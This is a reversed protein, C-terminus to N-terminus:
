RPTPVLLSTGMKVGDGIALFLLDIGNQLRIEMMKTAVLLIVPDIIQTKHFKCVFLAANSAVFIKGNKAM